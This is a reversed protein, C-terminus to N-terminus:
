EWWRLITGGSGVAFVYTSSSHYGHVGFLDETVGSSVVRYDSPLKRLITGGAGVAWDGWVGNLNRLTTSRPESWARGDWARVRGGVGVAWMRGDTAAFCSRLDGGRGGAVAETWVGRSLLLVAGAEGVSWTSGTLLTGYGCLGFMTADVANTGPAWASGNWVVFDAAGSGLPPPALVAHVETAL